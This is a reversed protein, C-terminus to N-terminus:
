FRTLWRSGLAQMIKILEGVEVPKVYFETAGRVAAEQADRALISGTLIVVPLSKLDRHEQLWSLVEFGSVVPMKLDLLLLNPIPFQARDSFPANGALYDICKQGDSVHFMRHHPVTMELAKRVLLADNSDDEALLITSEDPM